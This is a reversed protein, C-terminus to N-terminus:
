DSMNMVFNKTLSVPGIVEMKNMRRLFSDYGHLVLGVPASQEKGTASTARIAKLLHLIKL